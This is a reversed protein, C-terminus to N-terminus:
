YTAREKEGLVFSISPVISQKSFDYAVMGNLGRVVDAFYIHRDARIHDLASILENVKEYRVNQETYETKIDFCPISEPENTAFNWEIDISQFANILAELKHQHCEHLDLLKSISLSPYTAHHKDTFRQIFADYIQGKFAEKNEISVFQQLYDFLANFHKKKTDVSMQFDKEKQEHKAIVIPTFKNSM